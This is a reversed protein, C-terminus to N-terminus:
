FPEFELDELYKETKKLTKTKNLYKIFLKKFYLPEKQIEINKMPLGKKFNKKFKIVDDIKSIAELFKQAKLNENKDSKIYVGEFEGNPKFKIETAQSKLTLNVNYNSNSKSNFFVCDEPLSISFNSYDIIEEKEFKEKVYKLLKKKALTKFSNYPIFFLENNKLRAFVYEKSNTTSNKKLFLFQKEILFEKIENDLDIKKIEKKIKKLEKSNQKNIKMMEEYNIAYNYDMLKYNTRKTKKGLKKNEKPNIEEEQPKNKFNKEIKFIKEKAANEQKEAAFVFSSFAVFSLVILFIKFKQM